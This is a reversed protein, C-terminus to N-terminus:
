QLYQHAIRLPDVMHHRPDIAHHALGVIQHEPEIRQGPAPFAACYRPMSRRLDRSQLM